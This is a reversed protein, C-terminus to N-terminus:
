IQKNILRRSTSFGFFALGALLMAYTKPEPVATIGVDGDHVPWVPFASNIWIDGPYGENDYPRFGGGYLTHKDGTKSDILVFPEIGYFTDWGTPSSSLHSALPEAPFCFPIVSSCDSHTYIFNRFEIEAPIRWDGTGSVSLKSVFELQDPATRNTVTYEPAVWTLNTETDYYAMGSLRPELTANAVTSAIMLLGGITILAKKKNKKM